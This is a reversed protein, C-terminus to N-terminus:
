LISSVVHCRYRRPFIGSAASDTPRKSHETTQSNLMCRCRITSGFSAVTCTHDFSDTSQYENPALAAPRPCPAPSSQVISKAKQTQAKKAFFPQENSSSQESKSENTSPTCRLRGCARLVLFSDIRKQVKQMANCQLAFTYCQLSKFRLWGNSCIKRGNQLRTLDVHNM